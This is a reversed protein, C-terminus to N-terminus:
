NPLPKQNNGDNWLGSVSQNHNRCHLDSWNSTFQQNSAVDSRRNAHPIESSRRSSNWIAYVTVFSCYTSVTVWIKCIISRPWGTHRTSNYRSATILTIAAAVHAQIKTASKTIKWWSLYFLGFSTFGYGSYLNNILWELFRLEFGDVNVIKVWNEKLM